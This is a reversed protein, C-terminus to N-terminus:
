LVTDGFQLRFDETPTFEIEARAVRTITVDNAKVVDLDQVAKGLVNNQTVVIRQTIIDSPIEKLDVDAEVGVIVRFEKLKPRPGVAHLIDGVHLLTDPQAVEVSGDHLVRSIVIGSDALTPVQEITMGELNPNKIELNMTSLKPTSGAVVKQFEKAESTVNVRFIIRFFIMSLIIGLVGFPYAVAYGLGPQKLVQDIQDPSLHAVSRAVESAVTGTTVGSSAVTATIDKLAQQAAALAPTNTTAGSFLGAAAAIPVKGFKHMIVTLILGLTVVSFAMINLPLGQRRLSALFGPGVQLGITYVFLILGFERAFELVHSNLHIGFHGFLIGAFLVGAIGLTVSRVRLSGIALGLATVLGIVLVSQAASEEFFLKTLWSM